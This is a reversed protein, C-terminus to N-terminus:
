VQPQSDLKLGSKRIDTFVIDAFETPIKHGLAIMIGLFQIEYVAQAQKNVV